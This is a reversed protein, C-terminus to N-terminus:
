ISRRLRRLSSRANTAFLDSASLAADIAKSISPTRTIEVARLRRSARLAAAAEDRAIPRRTAQAV